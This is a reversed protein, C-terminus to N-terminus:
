DESVDNRRNDLAQRRDVVALLGLLLVPLFIAPGAVFIPIALFHINWDPRAFAITLFSLVVALGAGALMNIRTLHWWRDRKLESTVSEGYWALRKIAIRRLM